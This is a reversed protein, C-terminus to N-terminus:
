FYADTEVPAHAHMKWTLHEKKGKENWEDM